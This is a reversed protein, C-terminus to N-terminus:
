PLVMERRRTAHRKIFEAFDLSRLREACDLCLWRTWTQNADSDIVPESGIVIRAMFTGDEANCNDCLNHTTV